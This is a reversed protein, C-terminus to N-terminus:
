VSRSPIVIMRYTASTEFSRGVNRPIKTGNDKPDLLGLFPIVPSSYRSPSPIVIMRFTPLNGVNRPIKTGNDKPDLLGFFPIFPSSYGSPSPIMIM